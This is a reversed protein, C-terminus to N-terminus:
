RLTILRRGQFVETRVLGARTESIPVSLEIQVTNAFPMTFLEPITSGVAEQLVVGAGAVTNRGQEVGSSDVVRLVLGGEQFLDGEDGDSNVDVGHTSESFSGTQVWLYEYSWGLNDEAGFEVVSNSDVIDGDSDHDVPEQFLLSTDNFAIIRPSSTFRRAMTDLVRSVELNGRASIQVEAGVGYASSLTMGIMSIVVSGLFLAVAMELTTLGACRHHQVIRTKM